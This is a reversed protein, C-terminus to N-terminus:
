VGGGRTGASSRVPRAAESGRRDGRGCWAPLPLRGDPDMPEKLAEKNLSVNVLPDPLVTRLEETLRTLEVEFAQCRKQVSVKEIQTELYELDEESLLEGFPGLIANHTQSYKWGDVAVPGDAIAQSVPNTM